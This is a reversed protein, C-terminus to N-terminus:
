EDSIAQDVLNRASFKLSVFSNNIKNFTGINGVSLSNVETWESYHWKPKCYSVADVDCNDITMPKTSNDKNASECLSDAVIENDKICLVSRSRMLNFCDGFCESWPGIFWDGMSCKVVDNCQRMTEPTYRIDCRPSKPGRDCFISRHVVGDGCKTSCQETWDSTLWVGGKKTDFAHVKKGLSSNGVLTIPPSQLQEHQVQQQQQHHHHKHHRKNPYFDITQKPCNCDQQKDSQKELCAGENVHIVIGTSLEQVCEVERSQHERENPLGCNCASWEDIKWYAPCPQVNCRLVEDNLSPKTLHACRKHAYFKQTGERVCRIIPTLKGGGCTKSCSTFSVVRWIYAIKKKRKEAPNKTSTDVSNPKTDAETHSPPM